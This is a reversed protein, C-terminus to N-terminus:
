AKTKQGAQSKVPKAATAPLAHESRRAQWFNQSEQHLSAYFDKRQRSTKEYRATWSANRQEPTMGQLSDLFSEQEREMKKEFAVREDKLKSRFRAEESFREEISTLRKQLNEELRTKREALYNEYNGSTKAAHPARQGQAWLPSSLALAIGLMCIRKNKEM